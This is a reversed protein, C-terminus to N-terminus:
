NGGFLRDLMAQWREEVARVREPAVAYASLTMDLHVTDGSKELAIWLAANNLSEVTCALDKPPNWVWASGRLRDDADLALTGAHKDHAVNLGDPGTLREWVRERPQEVQRRARAVLRDAGRHAEVSHRLTHMFVEWGRSMSDYMEDWQAEAGIGHHTMTLVTKGGAGEVLYEMTQVAGPVFKDDILLIRRPPEWSEIRWAGECDPGWSVFYEGGPAGDVRAKFGFWRAVGDGTAIAEWVADPPADIEIQRRISRSPRTADDM